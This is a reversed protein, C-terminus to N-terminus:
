CEAISRIMRMRIYRQLHLGAGLGLMLGLLSGECSHPCGGRGKNEAGESGVCHLTCMDCDYLVSVSTGELHAMVCPTHLLIEITSHVQCANEIKRITALASAAQM